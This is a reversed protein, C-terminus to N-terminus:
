NMEGTQLYPSPRPDLIVGTLLMVMRDLAEVIAGAAQTEHDGPAMIRRLV